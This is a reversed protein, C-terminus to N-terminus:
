IPFILHTVPRIWGLVIVILSEKCEDKWMSKTTREHTNYTDTRTLKQYYQRHIVYQIVNKKNWYQMYYIKIDLM